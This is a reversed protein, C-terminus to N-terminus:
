SPGHQSCSEGTGAVWFMVVSLGVGDNILSSRSLPTYGPPSPATV